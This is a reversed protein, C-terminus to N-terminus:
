PSSMRVQFKKHASSISQVNGGDNDDAILGRTFYILICHLRRQYYKSCNRNTDLHALIQPLQCVHYGKRGTINQFRPRCSLHKLKEYWNFSGQKLEYLNQNLNLCLPPRSQSRNQRRNSIWNSIVDLHRREFQSKPIIPYFQFSKIGFQPNKHSGVDFPRQDYKCRSFIDGLLQKGMKPYRRTRM